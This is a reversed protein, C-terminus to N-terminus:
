SSALDLENKEEEQIGKPEVKKFLISHILKKERGVGM